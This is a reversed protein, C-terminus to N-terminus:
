HMENALRAWYSQWIARANSRHATRLDLRTSAARFRASADEFYPTGPGVKPRTACAAGAPIFSEHGETQIRGVRAVHAGDRRRITWRYPIACGPGGNCGIAHRRRITRSAGMYLYSNNRSGSCDAKAGFGHKAAPATHQPGGQNPWNTLRFAPGRRRDTELMQGIGLRSAGEKGSIAKRGIRPTRGRAVCGL